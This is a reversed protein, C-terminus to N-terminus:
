LFFLQFPAQLRHLTKQGGGQRGGRGWGRQLEKNEARVLFKGSQPVLALLHPFMVRRGRRVMEHLWM